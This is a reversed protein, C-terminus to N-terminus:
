TQHSKIWKRISKENLSGDAIGVGLEVLEKQTYVIKIANLQLLLLMVAVGIRKNGDVFGHNKILSYTIVAIKEDPEQYLDNGDFTMFAKNLASDILGLDRIGDSGGTKQIIKRQFLLLDDLKITRM